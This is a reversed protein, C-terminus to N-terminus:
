QDYHEDINDSIEYTGNSGGSNGPQSHMIEWDEEFEAFEDNTQYIYQDEKNLYALAEGAITFDLEEGGIDLTSNTQWQVDDHRIMELESIQEADQSTMSTPTMHLTFEDYDEDYSLKDNDISDGTSSANHSSIVGSSNQCIDVISAGNGIDSDYYSTIDEGEEAAISKTLLENKYLDFTDAFLRNTVLTSRLSNYTPAVFGRNM